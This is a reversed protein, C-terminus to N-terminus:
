CWQRQPFAYLVAPFSIDHNFVSRLRSLSLLQAKLGVKTEAAGVDGPQRGYCIEHFPFLMGQHVNSVILTVM